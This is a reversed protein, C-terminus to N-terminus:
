AISAIIRFITVFISHVINFVLIIAGSVFSAVAKENDSPGKESSSESHSGM